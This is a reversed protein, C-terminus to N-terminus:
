GGQCYSNIDNVLNSERPGIKKLEKQAEQLKNLDKSEMAGATNRATKAFDSILGIYDGRFKVLKEDKVEVGEVKKVVGDLKDALEKMANADDTKANRITNQEANIVEILRNCQSIKGDCGTAATLGVTLLAATAWINIQRM